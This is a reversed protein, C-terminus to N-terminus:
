LGRRFLHPWWFQTFERRRCRFERLGCRPKFWYCFVGCRREHELCSSDAACGIRQSRRRASRGFRPTFRRQEPWGRRYFPVAAIRPVAGGSSLSMVGGESPGEGSTLKISGGADAAGASISLGGGSGAEILAPASGASIAVAGGDDSMAEGGHCKSAVEVRAAGVRSKSRAASAPRTLGAQTSLSPAAGGPMAKAGRYQFQARQEM